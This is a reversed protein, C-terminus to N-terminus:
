RTELEGNNVKPSPYVYKRVTLNRVRHYNNSGGTRAGWGFYDGSDEKSASITSNIYEDGSAEIIHRNDGNFKVTVNRWTSDDIDFNPDASRQNEDGDFGIQISNGTWEDLSYKYDDNDSREDGIVSDTSYASLYTADAGSGGGAYHQFEAVFGPRPAKDYMMSGRGDLNPTLDVYNETSNYEAPENLTAKHVNGHLDYIFMTEEASSKETADPNDLYLFIKKESNQDIEPIEVLVTTETTNCEEKIWYDYKQDNKSSLFRLDSCDKDLLSNSILKETNLKVSVQYDNLTKEAQNEIYLPRRSNWSDNWWWDKSYSKDLGINANIAGDTSINNLPGRDYTIEIGIEQNSETISFKEAKIENEDLSRISPGNKLIASGETTNIRVKKVEINESGQNSLIMALEDQSTLAFDSVQIDESNFGSVSQIGQDQVYSFLAGGIIAVVLLMWGYTMLYEIASQGKM